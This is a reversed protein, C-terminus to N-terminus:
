DPGQFLRIAWHRRRLAQSEIRVRAPPPRVARVTGQIETMASGMARVIEAKARTVEAAVAQSVSTRRPRTSIVCGVTIKKPGSPPVGCLDGRGFTKRLVSRKEVDFLPLTISLM